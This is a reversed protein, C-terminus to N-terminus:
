NDEVHGIVQCDEFERPLMHEVTKSPENNKRIKRVMIFGDWTKEM